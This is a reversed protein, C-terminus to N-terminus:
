PREGAAPPIVHRNATLLAVQWPRLEAGRVADPPTSMPSMLNGRDRVHPLNLAHGLEHALVSEDYTGRSSADFLSARTVVWDTTMGLSCGTVKGAISRVVVVTVPDGIVSLAPRDPLRRVFFDTRGLVHDLLLRRNARLDLAAGPAPAAVTDVGDVRVRIGAAETLIRDARRLAPEIRDPTTLPKGSEDSLIMVRVPLTSLARTAGSMANPLREALLAAGAALDLAMARATAGFARVLGAPFTTM